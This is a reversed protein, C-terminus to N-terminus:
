CLRLSFLWDLASWYGYVLQWVFSLCPLKNLDLVIITAMLSFLFAVPFSRNFTKNKFTGVKFISQYVLKPLPMFLQILGLTALLFAISCPNRCPRMNQFAFGLWLCWSWCPKSSVKIFFLEPLGWRWLLQSKRGRTQSAHCRAWSTVGLAIAPLTDTVLIILLHVPQLQWCLPQFDTPVGWGYQCPLLTSPKRINFVKRGEEVAVIITASTIM